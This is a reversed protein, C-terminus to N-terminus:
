RDRPDTSWPSLCLDGDGRHRSHGGHAPGRAMEARPSAIAGVTVMAMIAPLIGVPRVMLGFLVTGVLVPLAHRIQLRGMPDREGFFARVTIIGGLLSLLVGLVLPFYGPGMRRSTGFDYGSAMWCVGLGILMFLVGSWFDKPKRVAGDMEIGGRNSQRTHNVGGEGNSRIGADRSMREQRDIQAAVGPNSEIPGVRPGSARRDPLPLATAFRPCSNRFDAGRMQEAGTEPVKMGPGSRPVLSVSACTIPLGLRGVPTM